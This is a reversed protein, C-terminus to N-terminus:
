CKSLRPRELVVNCSEVRSSDQMNTFSGFQTSSFSTKCIELPQETSHGNEPIRVSKKKIVFSKKHHILKGTTEFKVLRNIASTNPAKRCEFKM